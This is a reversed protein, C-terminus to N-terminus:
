FAVAAGTGKQQAYTEKCLQTPLHQTATDDSLLGWAPLMPRSIVWAVKAAAAPVYNNCIAICKMPGTSRRIVNIPSTQASDM